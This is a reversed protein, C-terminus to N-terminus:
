NGGVVAPYNGPSPSPPIHPLPNPTQPNRTQTKPHSHYTSRPPTSDNTWGLHGMRLVFVLRSRRLLTWCVVPCRERGEGRGEGTPGKTVVRAVDRAVASTAGGVCGGRVKLGTSDDGAVLDLADLPTLEDAAIVEVPGVPAPLVVTSVAPPLCGFISEEEEEEEEEERDEVALGASTM